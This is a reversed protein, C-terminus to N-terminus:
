GSQLDGSQATIPEKLAAPGFDAVVRLFSGEIIGWLGNEDRGYEVFVRRKSRRYEVKESPQAFIAKKHPMFSTHLQANKISARWLYLLLNYVFELHHRYEGDLHIAQVGCSLFLMFIMADPKDGVTKAICLCLSSRM